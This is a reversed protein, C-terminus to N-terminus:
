RAERSWGRPLGARRLETHLDDLAKRADVLEPTEVQERVQRQVPIGNYLETRVVTRWSAAETAALRERAQAFRERWDLELGARKERERELPDDDEASTGANEEEAEDAEEGEPTASDRRGSALDRGTITPASADGKERLKERREREKRAADALSQEGAAGSGVLALALACALALWGPTTPVKV